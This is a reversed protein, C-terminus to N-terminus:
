RTTPRTTSSGTRRPRSGPRSSPRPPRPSARGRQRGRRRRRRRPGLSRGGAAGGRTMADAASAAPDTSRTRAARRVTGPGAGARSSASPRDGGRAADREPPLTDKLRDLKDWCPWAPRRQGRRWGPHRERRRVEQVALARGPGSASPRARPGAASSACTASCAGTFPARRRWTTTGATRCCWSIPRSRGRLLALIEDARGPPHLAGERTFEAEVYRYGEVEPM